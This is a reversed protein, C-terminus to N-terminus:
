RYLILESRSFSNHEGHIYNGGCIHIIIFLSRPMTRNMPCGMQDRVDPLADQFNRRRPLGGSTRVKQLQSAIWAHITFLHIM